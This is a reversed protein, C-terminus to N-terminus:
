GRRHLLPGTLDSLRLRQRGESDFNEPDLWQRFAADLAPWDRDIVAYWATDRNRGKYVTAQRFIGEFSFGLRQAAARSPENLSDCKWEYRRYGLDFAQRMMLYMAETAVPTRQLRPSYHLHGVELSGSAPSIRLYSAVGVPAGTATEVIAHFLPDEGLCTSRMWGLYAEGTPFPGYPLYTWSRGETDERAAEWLGAAHRDLDLAEVRCYRGEMAERPPLPPPSWGEMPLGVRQGLENLRSDM